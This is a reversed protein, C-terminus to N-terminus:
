SPLNKVKSKLTAMRFLELCKQRCIKNLVLKKWASQIRVILPSFAVCLSFWNYSLNDGKDVFLVKVILVIQFFLWFERLLDLVLWVRCLLKVSGQEAMWLDLGLATSATHALSSILGKLFYHSRFFINGKVQLFIKLIDGNGGVGGQLQGKENM